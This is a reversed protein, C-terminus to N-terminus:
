PTSYEAEVTWTDTTCTAGAVSIYIGILDGAAFTQTQTQSTSTGKTQTTSTALKATGTNTTGDFVNFTPSTTCAGGLASTIVLNTFHGAAVAITQAVVTNIASAGFLFPGASITGEVPTITETMTGSSNTYLPFGTAPASAFVRLQSTVSTPAQLCISTATNCPAVAASTTGQPFDMFGATTGNAIFVPAIFGGTDTSTVNTANDTMSSAVPASTTGGSKIVANTAINLVTGAQAATEASYGTGATYFQVGAPVTAATVNATGGTSNLLQTNAGIQALITLPITNAGAVTGTFTPSAISPSTAFVPGGTGTSGNALGTAVGTGMGTIGSLPVAAATISTNCGPGTNTTWILADGAASCSSVTIATPVATGSTVNGLITNTAQTAFKALTVANAAIGATGLSANSVNSLNAVTPSPYSGALDGGAAGSPPLATPIATNCNIFTGTLAYTCLDGNSYTGAVLGLSAQKGNLQTQVSSTPDLFGFTTPTVGDVTKGTLTQTDTTGVITGAPAVLSTGWATCPTGTCVTIGPTTPWTMSGGGGGFCSASCPAWTGPNGTGDTSYFIGVYDPVLGPVATGGSGEMPEWPGALTGSTSVFAGMKKPQVQALAPIAIALALFTLIAKKM